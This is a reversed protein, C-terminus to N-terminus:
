LSVKAARVCARVCLVCLKEKRGKLLVVVVVVGATAAAAAAAACGNQGRTLSRCLTQCPPLAHANSCFQHLTLDYAWLKARCASVLLCLVPDPSYPPLSLLLLVPKCNLLVTLPPQSLPDYVCQKCVHIHLTETM